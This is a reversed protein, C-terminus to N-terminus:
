VPTIQVIGDVESVVDKAAAAVAAARAREAQARDTNVDVMIKKFDADAKLTRPLQCAGELMVHAQTRGQAHDIAVNFSIDHDGEDCCYAWNVFRCITPQMPPGGCTMGPPMEFMEFADM